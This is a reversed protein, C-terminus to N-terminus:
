SCRSSRSPSHWPCAGTRHNEARNGTFVFIGGGITMGVAIFAVAPLGLVRKLGDIAM